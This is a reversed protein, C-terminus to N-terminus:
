DEMYGTYRLQKISDDFIIDTGNDDMIAAAIDGPLWDEAGEYTWTYGNFDELTITDAAQNVETVVFTQPYESSTNFITALLFSILIAKM